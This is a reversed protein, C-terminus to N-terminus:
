VGRDGLDVLKELQEIITRRHPNDNDGRLPNAQEVPAKASHLLKVIPLELVEGPIPALSLRLSRVVRGVSLRDRSRTAVLVVLAQLRGALSEGVLRTLECPGLCPISVPALRENEAILAVDALERASEAGGQCQAM